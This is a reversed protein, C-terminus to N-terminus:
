PVPASLNEPGGHSGMWCLDGGLLFGLTAKRGERVDLGLDECVNFRYRAPPGLDPRLFEGPFCLTEIEMGHSVFTLHRMGQVLTFVAAWVKEWIEFGLCVRSTDSSSQAAYLWGAHTWLAGGSKCVGAKPLM